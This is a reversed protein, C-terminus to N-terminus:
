VTELLKVTWDQVKDTDDIWYESLLPKIEYIIIDRLLKSDIPCDTCFYSHGIKYGAGLLPDKAIEDNLKSVL